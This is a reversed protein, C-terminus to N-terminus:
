SVRPCMFRASAVESEFAFEATVKWNFGDIYELELPTTFSSM